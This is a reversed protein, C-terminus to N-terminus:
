ARFSLDQKAPIASQAMKKKKKRIFLFRRGIARAKKRARSLIIKVANKSKGMRDAIEKCTYGYYHKWILVDRYNKPLKMLLQHTRERMQLQEYIVEPEHVYNLKESVTIEIEETLTTETKGYYQTKNKQMDFCVRITTTRLWRYFAAYEIRHKYKLFRTFATSVADKADEVNRNLMRRAIAFLPQYYMKYLSAIAQEDGNKVKELMLKDTDSSLM